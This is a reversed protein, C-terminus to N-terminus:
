RRDLFRPPWRLTGNGLFWAGAIAIAGIVVAVMVLRLLFWLITSLLLAVVIGVAFAPWSWPLSSSRTAIAGRYGHQQASM